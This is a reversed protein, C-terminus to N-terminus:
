PSEPPAGFLARLDPSPADAPDVPVGLSPGLEALVAVFRAHDAIAQAACRDGVDAQEDAFAAADGGIAADITEAPTEGDVIPSAHVRALVHGLARALGAIAEPTGRDEVLRTVRVTKQGESELKIQCPLGLLNTVGWLPEADPIAWARRSTGLVRAGPDDFWVGPAYGAVLAADALEKLELLVDDGPDDSPGRVLLIVRVRPWSAVGAGLERVADLITFYDPPPPDILTARYAEVAAPLADLAVRPLEDYRQTPEAPDLVGRVLRREAGDLTTLALEAREDTDRQSREFLDELVPEGGGEDLRERPAGGALAHIAEAYAEAAARAIARSAEKAASAAGPDDPNSLRAALSAGAALRRLDWLYPARDAGDFDNPEIAFSGDRARLVGFNEPHPDGMALPLPLGDSPLEAGRPAEVAFASRSVGFAGREWDRRYVALSGRYFAYPDDAMRAYKGAVLAPRARILPADARAIVSAIEAARPDDLASPGCAALVLLSPAAHPWRM